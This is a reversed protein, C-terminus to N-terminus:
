VNPQQREPGARPGGGHRPGRVQRRHRDSEPHVQRQDGSGSQGESDSGM